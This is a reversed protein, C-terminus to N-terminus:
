KGIMKSKRWDNFNLQGPQGEVARDKAWDVLEDSKNKAASGKEGARIKVERNVRGECDTLRYELETVFKILTWKVVLAVCLGAFLGLLSPLIIAYFVSWTPSMKAVM